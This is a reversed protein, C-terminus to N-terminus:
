ASAPASPDYGHDLWVFRPVGAALDLASPLASEAVLPEFRGLQWTVIWGHDVRLALDDYRLLREVTRPNLLDCALKADDAQVRYRRNFDASEIEVDQGGLATVFRQGLGERVVQVRSLVAPLRVGAVAVHHERRETRTTTRGEGDTSTVTEHTIYRYTMAVQQSGGVTRTWVERVSPETGRGVPLDVCLTLWRPDPVTATWGDRAAWAGLQDRRRRAAWMSLLGIGVMLLVGVVLVAVVLLISM